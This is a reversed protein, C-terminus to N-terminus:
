KGEAVRLSAEQFRISEECEALTRRFLDKSGPAARKLAALCDRDVALNAQRRRIDEAEKGAGSVAHSRDPKM